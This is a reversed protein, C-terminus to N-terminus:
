DSDSQRDEDLVLLPIWTHYALECSTSKHFLSQFFRRHKRVVVAMDVQNDKIFKMIGTATDKDNLYHYAPQPNGWMEHLTKQESLLRTNFEDGPASVSLIHLHAHFCSALMSISKVPTHHVNKLDCAFVMTNISRFSAQPPIILLPVTCNRIMQVTFSGILARELAGKGTAGMVVMDFPYHIIYSILADVSMENRATVEIELAPNIDLISNKLEDLQNLAKEKISEEFAPSPVPIELLSHIPLFSHYLIVKLPKLDRSLTAAYRAAHISSDSFDTLVLIANM